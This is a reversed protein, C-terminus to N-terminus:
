VHTHGHWILGMVGVDGTEVRSFPSTHLVAIYLRYAVLRFIRHSM